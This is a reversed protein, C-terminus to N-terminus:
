QLESFLVYVWDKNEIVLQPIDNFEYPSKTATASKPPVKCIKLVLWGDNSGSGSKEINIPIGILHIAQHWDVLLITIPQTPPLKNQHLNPWASASIISCISWVKM